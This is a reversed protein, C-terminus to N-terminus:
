CAPIPPPGGRFLYDLLFTIDDIDLYGSANADGCCPSPEPLDGSNFILQLLFVPDDLDVNGSGDADGPICLLGLLFSQAFGQYMKYNVSKAEGVATQGSASIANLDQSASSGGGSSVVEWAVNEGTTAEDSSAFAYSVAILAILLSTASSRLIAKM